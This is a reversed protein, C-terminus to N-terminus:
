IRLITSAPPKDISTASRRLLVSPSSQITLPEDSATDRALLPLTRSAHRKMVSMADRLAATPLEKLNCPQPAAIAGSGDDASASSHHCSDAGPNAASNGWACATAACFPACLPSGMTLLAITVAIGIRLGSRLDAMMKM